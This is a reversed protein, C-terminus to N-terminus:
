NVFTASVDSTVASVISRCIASIAGGEMEKDYVWFRAIESATWDKSLAKAGTHIPNVETGVKFRDGTRNADKAIDDMFTRCSTICDQYSDFQRSQFSIENLGPFLQLAEFEVSQENKLTTIYIFSSKLTTM